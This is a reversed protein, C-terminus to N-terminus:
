VGFGRGLGSVRIGLGDPKEEAEALESVGVDAVGGSVVM